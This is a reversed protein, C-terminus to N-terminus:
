SSAQEQIVDVGAPVKFIFLSAPVAQNIKIHSFQIGTKHGLHDQLQMEKIQNQAFGLQISAFLSDHKKPILIFWRLTSSAKGNKIIFDKELATNSHSLLLAPAEGKAYQLSRVTVQALDKDYIWLTKNNAVILQPITKTVEWRFHDPRILAMRGYSRQIAKAHNDYVTQTFDAQMTRLNKLLMSLDDSVTDAQALNCLGFFLLCLSISCFFLFKM